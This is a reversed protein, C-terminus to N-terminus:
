LVRCWAVLVVSRAGGRALAAACASGTAGTTLVDDVLICRSPARGRSEVSIGDGSLRRARGLGRQRTRLA